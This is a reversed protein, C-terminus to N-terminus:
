NKHNNNFALHIQAQLNELLESIHKPVGDEKKEFFFVHSQTNNKQRLYERFEELSKAGKSSNCSKCSCILNETEHTGGNKQPIIHDITLTNKKHYNLFVGCYACNGRTKEYVDAQQEDTFYKDDKSLFKLYSGCKSCSAKIHLGEETTYNDGVHEKCRPCNMKLHVKNTTM